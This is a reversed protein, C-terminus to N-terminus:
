HHGKTVMVLMKLNLVAFRWAQVLVNRRARVARASPPSSLAFTTVNSM